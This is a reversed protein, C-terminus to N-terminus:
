TSVVEAAGTGECAVVPLGCAMAELLTFCPGGECPSPSAFVHCQSLRAPLDEREIFGALDLLKPSGYALAKERLERAVSDDVRGMFTVRLDPFEPLLRGCAELLTVVGK